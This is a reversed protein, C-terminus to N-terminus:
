REGTQAVLREAMPELRSKEVLTMTSANTNNLANDLQSMWENMKRSKTSASPSETNSAAAERSRKEEPSFNPLSIINKPLSAASKARDQSRHAAASEPQKVIQVHMLFEPLVHHPRLFVYEDRARCSL